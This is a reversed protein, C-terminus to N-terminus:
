ALQLLTLGMLLLPLGPVFPIILLIAGVVILFTGALRKWLSLSAAAAGATAAGGPAQPAHGGGNAFGTPRVPAVTSAQLSVASASGNPIALPAIAHQCQELIKESSTRHHDYYVVLSSTLQTWRTDTVGPLSHVSTRFFDEQRFVEDTPLKLRIRGPVSSAVSITPPIMIQM